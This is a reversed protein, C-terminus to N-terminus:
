YDILFTWQNPKGLARRLYVRRQTNRMVFQMTRKV